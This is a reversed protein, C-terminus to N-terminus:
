IKFLYPFVLSIHCITVKFLFRIVIITELTLNSRRVSYLHSNGANIVTGKEGGRLFIWALKGRRGSGGIVSGPCIRMPKELGDWPTNRQKM